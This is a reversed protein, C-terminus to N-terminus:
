AAQGERVRRAQRARTAATEEWLKALVKAAVGQKPPGKSEWGNVTQPAIGLRRAFQSQNEGLALRLTEIDIEDAMSGEISFRYRHCYPM